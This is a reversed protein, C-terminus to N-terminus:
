MPISSRLSARYAKPTMGTTKKFLRHFYSIDEFGMRYAIEKIPLNETLLQLQIEEIKKQNIYNLPTTNLEKRFIRILHNKSLCSIDALLEISIDTRLHTHVYKLVKMIRQDHIHPKPTSARLFRSLLICIIGRSEMQSYIAQQKNRIINHTLTQNNDYFSPDSQLLSMDPCLFHLRKFLEIDTPEPQVEFPLQWHELIHNTSENYIHIYYHGFDGNCVYSHPTFAPVIYLRNPQLDQLHDRFQIQANGTTVYYIRTFPSCVNRYTWDCHHHAFGMNLILFHLQENLDQM